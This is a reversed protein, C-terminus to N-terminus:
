LNTVINKTFEHNKLALVMNRANSLDWDADINCILRRLRTHQSRYKLNSHKNVHHLQDMWYTGPDKNVETCTVIYWNNVSEKIVLTVYHKNVEILMKDDETNVVPTTHASLVKDADSNSPLEIDTIYSMGGLLACLNILWDEHSIMNLKLLDPM